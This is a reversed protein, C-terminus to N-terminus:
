RDSHTGGARDESDRFTRRVDELCKILVFSFSLLHVGFNRFKTLVSNSSNSYGNNFYSTRSPVVSPEQSPEPVASTPLPAPAAVDPSSGNNLLATTTAYAGAGLVLALGAVGAVVQRRRRDRKAMATTYVGAGQSFHTM